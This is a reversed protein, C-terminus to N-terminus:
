PRPKVDRVERISLSLAESWHDIRNGLDVSMKELAHEIREQSKEINHMNTELKVIREIDGNRYTELINVRQREGNLKHEIAILKADIGDHVPKHAEKYDGIKGVIHKSVLGGLLMIATLVALFPAWFTLDMLPNTAPQQVPVTTETRMIVPTGSAVTQTPHQIHTTNAVGEAM